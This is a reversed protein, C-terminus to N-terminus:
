RRSKRKTGNASIDALADKPINTTRRVVLSTPIKSSTAASVATSESRITDPQLHGLLSTVAKLAINKCSMRVTTLPPITYEALHIDDFGILSFDEPVSLSAEFLAHQVGIATMDNSCM